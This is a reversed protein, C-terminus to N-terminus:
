DPPALLLIVLVLGFLVACVPWLYKVCESLWGRIYRFTTAVHPSRAAQNCFALSSRVVRHAPRLLRAQTSIALRRIHRAGRHHRLQAPAADRAVRELADTEAELQRLKAALDPRVFPLTVSM